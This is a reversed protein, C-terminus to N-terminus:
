LVTAIRCRRPAFGSVEFWLHGVFVEAGDEAAVEGAAEDVLVAAVGALEGKKIEHRLPHRLKVLLM